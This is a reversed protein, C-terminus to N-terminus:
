FETTLWAQVNRRVNYGYYGGGVPVWFQTDFINYLGVRATV